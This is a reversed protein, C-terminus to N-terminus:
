LSRVNVSHEYINWLLFQVHSESFTPCDNPTQGPLQNLGGSRTLDDFAAATEVDAILFLPDAGFQPLEPHQLKAGIKGLADLARLYVSKSEGRLDDFEQQLIGVRLDTVPMEPNWVFPINSVTLDHGDPGYMSHLVLACDEVTRCIPGIKDLTWSCSMVGYRSVRGYTPRLGTVGCRISPSLISGITETGISFAVLGAATAAASDASSGGSSQDLDWPTKTM